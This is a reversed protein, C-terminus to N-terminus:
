DLEMDIEDRVYLELHNLAAEIDERRFVSSTNEAFFNFYEQKFLWDPKRRKEEEM